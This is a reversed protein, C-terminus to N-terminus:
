YRKRFVSNINISAHNGICGPGPGAPIRMFIDPIGHGTLLFLGGWMKGALREGIGPRCRNEGCEMSGKLFSISLKVSEIYFLM